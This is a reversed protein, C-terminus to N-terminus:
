MSKITCFTLASPTPREVEERTDINPIDSLLHAPVTDTLQFHFATASACSMPWVVAVDLKSKDADGSRVHEHLVGLDRAFTHDSVWYTIRLRM